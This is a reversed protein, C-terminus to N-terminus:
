MYLMYAKSDRVVHVNVHEVCRAALKRQMEAMMDMGGGLAKGSRSASNARETRPGENEAQLIICIDFNTLSM